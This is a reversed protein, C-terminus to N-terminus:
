NLCTLGSANPSPLCRSVRARLFIASSLVSSYQDIFSVVYMCTFSLMVFRVFLTLIVVGGLLNYILFFVANWQSANTQPQKDRGTIDIAAQMVDIWGELSVIEFLILLSDGFTDFSWVTSVAPNAWVRPALYGYDNGLNRANVNYENTCDSKGQVTTDNCTFSVGSFINLGWVAYPIMYLAALIGADLIRVFGVILLSHFTTRMKDFLTILRLARLAKLARTFRSLGGLFIISTVANVLLGILIILDVLNWISLLYANPTFIFGDAIVKIIFEVLLVLAFVGEAIVFWSERVFGHQAYFGRRYMPTAISAVVIGGVVALFLIIQFLANATQSAPRGFIREGNPPEVLAQCLRRVPNKQSFVWFTRDYSPHAAIFDAKQARQEYLVNNTDEVAVTDANFAALIERDNTDSQVTCLCIIYTKCIISQMMTRKMSSILRWQRVADLYLRLCRFKM